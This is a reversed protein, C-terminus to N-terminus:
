RRDRGPQPPSLPTALINEIRDLSKQAAGQKEEVRTMRESLGNPGLISTKQFDEQASIRRTNEATAASITAAFWVFAAVNVLMMFIQPLSIKKDIEWRDVRDSARRSRSPEEDPPTM